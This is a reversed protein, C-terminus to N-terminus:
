SRLTAKLRLPKILLELGDRIDNVVIDAAVITECSAGEKQIVAIGLAAMKLMLRDNRGNGFCVTQQLGIKRVYNLKEIHQDQQPLVVVECPMDALQKRVTGFTDATVIHLSVKESLINLLEKVGPILQGDVAITGNYDLVAHQLRVEGFGPITTELM